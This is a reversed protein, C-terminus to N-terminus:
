IDWDGVLAYGDSDVNIEYRKYVEPTYQSPMQINNTPYSFTPASATTEFIVSFAANTDVATITVATIGDGTCKYIKNDEALAITPTNGTVTVVTPKLEYASLDVTEGLEEWYGNPYTTSTLWIYGASVSEVYYVDGVSNGSSPLSAVNAVGGKLTFVTGIDSAGLAGINTRAQEQQATTLSQQSYLVATNVKYSVLTGSMPGGAADALTVEYITGGDICMLTVTGNTTNADVPHFIKTGLVFYIKNQSSCLALVTISNKNLTVTTGNQSLTLYDADDDVSLANINTRAQAQQETTLNQNTYLVADSSGGGSVVSRTVTDQDDLVYLIFQQSLETLDSVTFTIEDEDLEGSCWAIGDPTRAFVVKDATIADYIDSYSESCEYTAPNSSVLTFRASFVDNSAVNVTETYVRANGDPISYIYLTTGVLTSFKVVSSGSVPPTTMACQRGSLDTFIIQQKPNEQLLGYIQAGTLDAVNIEGLDPDNRVSMTVFVNPTLAAHAVEDWTCPLQYDAM